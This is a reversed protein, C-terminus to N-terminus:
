RLAVQLSAHVFSVIGGVIMLGLPGMSPLASFTALIPLLFNESQSDSNDNTGENDSGSKPIKTKLLRRSGFIKSLINNLGLSFSFSLDEQFGACVSQCSISFNLDPNVRQSSLNMISVSKSQKDIWFQPIVM